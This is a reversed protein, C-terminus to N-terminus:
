VEIESCQFHTDLQLSPKELIYAQEMERLDLATLKEIRWGEQKQKEKLM